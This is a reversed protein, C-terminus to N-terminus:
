TGIWLNGFIDEELATFSYHPLGSNNMTLQTFTNGDYKILGDGAVTGAGFTGLWLDNNGDILLVQLDNAPISSNSTHFHTWDNGDFKFLEDNFIHGM